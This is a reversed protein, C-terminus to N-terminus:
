VKLSVVSTFVILIRIYFMSACNHNKLTCGYMLPQTSASANGKIITIVRKRARTDRFPSHMGSRPFKGSQPCETLM